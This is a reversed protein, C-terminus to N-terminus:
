LEDHLNRLREGFDTAESGVWADHHKVIEEVTLRNDDNDDTALFLHEAEQEAADVNDPILWKLVESRNLKGDKNEDYENVFRDKESVYNATKPDPLLGQEDILFETLDLFGDKNKDRRIMTLEYLVDKMQDFEEPSNFMTFETVNLRDDGDLDAARWLARDEELMQKNEPDQLEEFDTDLNIEFADSLHEAWTVHGDRNADEEQFREAGEEMTLSHFSKLIWDKLEIMDVHGNRDADLGGRTVLIRLKDRSEQVSLHDFQQAEKKSGLVAQHDFDENHSGDSRYHGDTVREKSSGGGGGGHVHNGHVHASSTSQWMTFLIITIVQTWIM